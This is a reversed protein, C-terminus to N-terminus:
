RCTGWDAVMVVLDAANIKGDLNLDDTQVNQGWKSLLQKFDLLDVIGDRYVDGRCDTPSPTPGGGNRYEDAGIDYRSGQPRSDGEFDVMVEAITEGTDILPSGATLHFNSGTLSTIKPDAVWTDGPYVGITGSTKSVANNAIIWNTVSSAKDIYGQSSGGFNYFLNNKISIGDICRLLLARSGVADPMAAFTNNFIKVNEIPYTSSCSENGINLPVWTPRKSKSVFINNIFTIDRVPSSGNRQMMLFKVMPSDYNLNTTNTLECYNSDFVLNTINDWGQFCDAHPKDEDYCEDLYTDKIINKRLITNNGFFRIGDPDPYSTHKSQDFRRTRGHTIINAEILHNNGEFRIGAMYFVSIHNSKILAKSSSSLLNVGHFWSHHIFNHDIEADSGSVTIASDDKPDNNDPGVVELNAMRVSNGTVKIKGKVCTNNANLCINKFLFGNTDYVAPNDGVPQVDSPVNIIPQNLGQITLGSRSVTVNENYQGPRVIAIDGAQLGSVAAQISTFDGSGDKAVYYTAASVPRATLFIGAAVVVLSKYFYAM